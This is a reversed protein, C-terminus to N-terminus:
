EVLVGYCDGAGPTLTPEADTPITNSACAYNGTTPDEVKAFVGFSYKNTTIGTYNVYVYEGAGCTTAGALLVNTALKDKPVIGGFSAIMPTIFADTVCGSAPLASTLSLNTLVGAIKQLDAVRATQRGKAPAGMVNPLFAVALIGIIAIVILLEILTFGLKSKNM